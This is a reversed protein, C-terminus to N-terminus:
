SQKDAQNDMTDADFAVIVKASMEFHLGALRGRLTDLDGSLRKLSVLSYDARGQCRASMFASFYITTYPTVIRNPDFGAPPTKPITPKHEDYFTLSVRPGGIDRDWNIFSANGHAFHSRADFVSIIDTVLRDTQSMHDADEASIERHLARLLKLRHRFRGDARSSLDADAEARLMSIIQAMEYREQLKNTLFELSWDFNAWKRMMEGYVLTLFLTEKDSDIPLRDTIDWEPDFFDM